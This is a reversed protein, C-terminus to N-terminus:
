NKHSKIEVFADKLRKIIKKHGKFCKEITKFVHKKKPDKEDYNEIKFTIYMPTCSRGKFLAQRLLSDQDGELKKLDNKLDDSLYDACEQKTISDEAPNIFLYCTLLKAM